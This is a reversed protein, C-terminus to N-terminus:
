DNNRAYSKEGGCTSLLSFRQIAADLMRYEELTASVDNIDDLLTHVMTLKAFIM